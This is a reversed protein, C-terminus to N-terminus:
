DRIMDDINGIRLITATRMPHKPSKMHGAFDRCIYADDQDAYM